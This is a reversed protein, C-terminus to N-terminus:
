ILPKINIEVLGVARPHLRRQMAVDVRGMDVYMVNIQIHLLFQVTMAQLQGGESRTDTYNENTREFQSDYTKLLFNTHL